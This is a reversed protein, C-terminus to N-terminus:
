AVSSPRSVEVVDGVSVEAAPEFTVRFYDESTGVAVGDDFSEVLVRYPRPSRDAIAAARLRNSLDMLAASRESKVAPEVQDARTAAPTDARPSYRFTHVKSFGIHEVFGLTRAFDDDSEGPFGVIVDTTLAIGPIAERLRLIRGAFDSTTYRRGMAILVPDSGSQLPIHLHPMFSSSRAIADILADTIDPPEISSLRVREVGTADMLGILTALDPAEATSYRGLNIGTLVVERVGADVAKEITELISATAESREPGRAVHIICYTCANDCGDQIKVPLRTRSGQAFPHPDLGPKPGDIGLSDLIEPVVASKDSVIHVRADLAALGAPDISAACGTVFVTAHPSERLARRVAKRVKSDAEATVTCTNVVVVDTSASDDGRGLGAAELSAEFGDSEVRNVKCGFTISRYTFSM